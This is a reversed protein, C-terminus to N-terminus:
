INVELDFLFNTQLCISGFYFPLFFPFEDNYLILVPLSVIDTKFNYRYLLENRAMASDRWIFLFFLSPLPIWARPSSDTDCIIRRFSAANPRSLLIGIARAISATDRQGGSWFSAAPWLLPGSNTTATAACAIFPVDVTATCALYCAGNCCSPLSGKDAVRSWTYGVSAFLNSTLFNSIM